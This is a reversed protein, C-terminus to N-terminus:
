EKLARQEPSSFAWEFFEEGVKVYNGYERMLLHSSEKNINFVVEEGRKNLLRVIDCNNMLRLITRDEFMVKISKNSYAIFKGLGDLTIEKV